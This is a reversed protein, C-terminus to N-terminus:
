HKGLIKTKNVESANHQWTGDVSFKYQHDGEPLNIITYFDGHSFLFYLSSDLIISLALFILLINLLHM